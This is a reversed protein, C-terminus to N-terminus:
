FFREMKKVSGLIKVRSVESDSFVQKPYYPNDSILEVGNEKKVYQRIVGDQGDITVLYYKGGHAKNGMRVLLIDRHQITPAMSDDKVSLYIYDTPPNKNESLINYNLTDEAYIMGGDGLVREVLPIASFKETLTEAFPPEDIIKSKAIGFYDAIKQIAGMRPERRDQEWMSVAKDTVGAIRALQKQTLRNQKRINKINSGISM